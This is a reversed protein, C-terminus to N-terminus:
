GISGGDSNSLAQRSLPPSKGIRAQRRVAAFLLLGAVICVTAFVLQANQVGTESALWGAATSGLVLFVRDFSQVSVIRGRMNEPTAALIVPRALSFVSSQAAGAMAVCALSLWLRLPGELHTAATFAAMAAGFCAIVLPLWRRPRRPPRLAILTAAGVAGAGTLATLAGFGASGIELVNRAFLPLFVQMYTMGFAFFVMMMFITQWVEPTRAAFRAGEVLGRAMARVRMAGPPKHAPVDIRLTCLFAAFSTFAMVAYAGAAGYVGFLVGGAGAFVVRVANSTASMMAFAPMIALRGVITPILAQRAPQDFAMATGRLVSYAYVHWLELRGSAILAAFGGYLTALAIRDVILVRRRDAWDAVAGGILGFVLQPMLAAALVGGLHVASGTLDLVLLPRAVVELWLAAGHCIQAAWLWRFSPLGLVRLAPRSPATM